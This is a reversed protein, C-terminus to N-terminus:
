LHSDKYLRTVTALRDAMTPTVRVIKEVALKKANGLILRDKSARRLANAADRWRGSYSLLGIALKGDRDLVLKADGATRRCGGPTLWGRGAFGPDATGAYSISSNSSLARAALNGRHAANRLFAGRRPPLDGYHRRPSTRSGPPRRSRISSSAPGAEHGSLLWLPAPQRVQPQVAGSEM